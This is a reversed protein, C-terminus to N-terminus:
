GCLPGKYAEVGDVNTIPEPDVRTILEFDHSQFIPMDIARSEEWFYEIKKIQTLMSEM